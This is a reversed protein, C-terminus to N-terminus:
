FMRVIDYRKNNDITLSDFLTINELTLKESTFDNYKNLITDINYNGKRVRFLTIHGVFEEKDCYFFKEKELESYIKNELERLTSNEKLGFWIIYQNNKEFYGLRDIEIDVSDIDKVANLIALEVNKLNKNAISNLFALTIHLNEPEMYRIIKDALEIRLKNIIEFLKINLPTLFAIFLRKEFMINDIYYNLDTQFNILSYNILNSSSKPLLSKNKNSSKKTNTTPFLELSIDHDIIPSEIKNDLISIKNIQNNSKFKECFSNALNINESGVFVVIYTYRHLKNFISKELTNTNKILFVFAKLRTIYHYYTKFYHTKRNIEEWAEFDKSLKLNVSFTKGILQALIISSLNTAIGVASIENQSINEDKIEFKRAM